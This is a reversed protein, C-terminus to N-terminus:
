NLVGPASALGLQSYLALGCYMKVRTISEDKTESEGVRVVRVGASGKATLGSIGHTFSGDDFTGALVTTATSASGQTQNTPIYDNRFIPIDRYVPIKKGSPLTIVEGINAGGLARLLAYYARITRAPMMIWDVQGDKDKVLDILEDLLDFSLNQGNTASTRVQSGAVLSLLGTFTNSTGDGNIMTSQYQRGLSKAKSAVQVATQDVYNSRTAQILGNVEADGVITTLSSTVQTFTAAAKATITTGVGAFQVDGLANERNYALANGEIDEFPLFEFIPNVDVINEIVGAHLENQTLKASEALTVSAM